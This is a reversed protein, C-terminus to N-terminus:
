AAAAAPVGIRELAGFERELLPKVAGQWAAISRLATAAPM